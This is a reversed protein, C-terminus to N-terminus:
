CFTLDGTKLNTIKHMCADARMQKASWEDTNFHEKIWKNLCRSWLLPAVPSGYLNKRLLAFEEVRKGDEMTYTKLEEPLKIPYQQAEETDAHLFATKVDAPM